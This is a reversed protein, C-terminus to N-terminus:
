AVEQYRRLISHFNTELTNELFKKSEKIIYSLTQDEIKGEKSINLELLSIEKNANIYSKQDIV